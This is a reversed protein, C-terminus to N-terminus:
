DAAVAMNDQVLAQNQGAVAGHEGRGGLGPELLWM